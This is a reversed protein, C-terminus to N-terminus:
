SSLCLFVQQEWSPRSSFLGWLQVFPLHLRPICWSSDLCLHTLRYLTRPVSRGFYPTHAPREQELFTHLFVCFSRYSLVPAQSALRAFSVSIPCSQQSFTCQFCVRSFSLLNKFYFVAHAYSCICVYLIYDPKPQFHSDYFWLIM